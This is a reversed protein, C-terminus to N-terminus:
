IGYDDAVNIYASYWENNDQYAKELKIDTLVYDWSTGFHSIGLIYIDLENHYYIIENTDEILRRATDENILYYQYIDLYQIIDGNENEIYDIGGVLELKDFDNAINNCLLLPEDKYLLNAYSLRNYELEYDNLDRKHILRYPKKSM